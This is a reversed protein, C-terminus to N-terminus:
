RSSFEWLEEYKANLYIGFHKELAALYQPGEPLVETVSQGDHYVTLDRDLLTTRGWSKRLSCMRHLRFISQPWTSTFHNSMEIDCDLTRDEIQFCYLDIYSKDDLERQLMMGYKPNRQLRYREGYQEFVQDAVIPVPLYLGPGGFGVDALWDKGDMTVILVEHTHASPTVLGYLVRVLLPRVAFGLSKLALHLIGNLEFCYGGRRQVILKSVLQEPALAITRGLLIDLNEFPISFAQAAHLECLGEVGAEPIKNLGIRDLYQPLPFDNM